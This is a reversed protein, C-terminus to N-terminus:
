APYNSTMGAYTFAPLAPDISGGVDYLGVTLSPISIGNRASVRTAATSRARPSQLQRDSFPIYSGTLVFTSMGIGANFASCGVLGILALVSALLPRTSRAGWM